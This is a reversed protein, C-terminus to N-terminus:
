PQREKLEALLQEETAEGNHLRNLTAEVFQWQSDTCLQLLWDMRWNFDDEHPGYEKESAKIAARLNAYLDRKKM